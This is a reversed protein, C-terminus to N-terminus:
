SKEYAFIKGSQNYEALQVTKNGPASCADIVDYKRKKWKESVGNLLLFPPLASSFSQMVCASTKLLNLSSDKTLESYVEQELHYMNPILGDKRGVKALREEFEIFGEDNRRLRVQVTQKNIKSEKQIKPLLHQHELLIKKLQGGGVIKGTNCLEAIMIYMLYPNCVNTKTKSFIEEQAQKIANFNNLVLSLVSYAM